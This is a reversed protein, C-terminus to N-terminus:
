NGNDENKNQRETKTDFFYEYSVNLSNCILEYEDITLKRKLNLISSIGQISIGTKKALHVQKIGKEKLYSKIKLAIM